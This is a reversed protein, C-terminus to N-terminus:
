IMFSEKDKRNGKAFDRLKKRALQTKPSFDEELWIKTADNKLKPGSKDRLKFNSFKVLIPRTFDPRPPGIRYAQEIDNEDLTVELQGSTFNCIISITSANDEKDAEALGKIILNNRRINNTLDDVVDSLETNTTSLLMPVSSIKQEIACVRTKVDAIDQMITKLTATMSVFHEEYATNFTNMLALVDETRPGPNAEVDGACLLLLAFCTAALVFSSRPLSVRLLGSSISLPESRMDVCTRCAVFTGICAQYTSVDIGMVCATPVVSLSEFRPYAAM